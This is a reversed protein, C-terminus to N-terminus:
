SVIEYARVKRSLLWLFGACASGVSLWAAWTPVGIWSDVGFLTAWIVQVMNFLSIIWGWSTDLMENIVPAMGIPVIFVGFM